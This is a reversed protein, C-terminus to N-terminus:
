ALWDLTLLLRALGPEARPSRHVLGAGENGEWREGKLLAVDGTSLSHILQEDVVDAQAGGLLRRDLGSEDLWESAAGQYTTVLRLPVHDVHFRPCMPKDLVRLRLGIRRAGTLCFFAEVLWGLDDLFDAQGPLQRADLLGDLAPLREEEMELTQSLALGPRNRVLAAAFDRLAPNLRRTWVALNVGDRLVEALVQPDEGFAQRPM